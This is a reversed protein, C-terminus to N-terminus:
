AQAEPLMSHAAVQIASSKRFPLEWMLLVWLVMAFSYCDVQAVPAGLTAHVIVFADRGRAM